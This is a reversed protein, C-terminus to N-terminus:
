LWDAVGKNDSDDKNGPMLFYYLVGLGGYTTILGVIEHMPMYASDPLMPALLVIAIIRFSNFFVGIILAIGIWTLRDAVTIKRYLVIILAMLMCSSIMGFGNCEAAVHFPRSNSILMLMPGSQSDMLGLESSQGFLKLGSSAWQGAVTRLPWDLVPLFLAVSSFLAFAAIASIILRKQEKGFLYFMFAALSLALAVLIILSFKTFVAVVLVAYSVILLNQSGPGFDLVPKFRIRQEYVLLSMSLLFVLCSHLLQEHAITQHLLWNIVPLFVIGTIAFVLGPVLQDLRSSTKEKM